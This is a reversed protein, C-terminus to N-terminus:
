AEKTSREVRYMKTVQSKGFLRYAVKAEGSDAPNRGTPWRMAACRLNGRLLPQLHHQPRCCFVGSKKNIRSLNFSRTGTIGDLSQLAQPTLETM